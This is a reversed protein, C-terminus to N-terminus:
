CAASELPRSAPPRGPRARREDSGATVYSGDNAKEFERLLKNGRESPM